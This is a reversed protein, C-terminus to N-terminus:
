DFGMFCRLCLCGWLDTYVHVYMFKYPQTNIYICYILVYMDVHSAMAFPQCRRM